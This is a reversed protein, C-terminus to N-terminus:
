PDRNHSVNDWTWHKANFVGCDHETFSKPQRQASTAKMVVTAAHLAPLQETTEISCAVFSVYAAHPMGMRSLVFVNIPGTADMPANASRITDIRSMSRNMEACACSPHSSRNIPSEPTLTGVM